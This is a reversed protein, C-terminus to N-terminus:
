KQTQSVKLLKERGTPEDSRYVAATETIAIKNPVLINVRIIIMCSQNGNEGLSFEKRLSEHSLGAWLFLYFHICRKSLKPATTASALSTSSRRYKNCTCQFSNGSSIRIHLLGLPSESTPSTAVVFSKSSVRQILTTCGNILHAEFEARVAPPFPGNCLVSSCLQYHVGQECSCLTKQAEKVHQCTSCNTDLGSRFCAEEKLQLQVNVLTVSGGDM